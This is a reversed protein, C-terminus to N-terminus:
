FGPYLHKNIFILLIYETRTIRLLRGSLIKNQITLLVSFLFSNNNKEHFLTTM